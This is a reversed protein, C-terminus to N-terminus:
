VDCSINSDIDKLVDFAEYKNSLISKNIEVSYLENDEILSDIKKNYNMVNQKITNIDDKKNL